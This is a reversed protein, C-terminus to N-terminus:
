GSTTKEGDNWFKWATETPMLIIEAFLQQLSQIQQLQEKKLSLQSEIKNM